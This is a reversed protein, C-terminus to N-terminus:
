GGAEPYTCHIIIHMCAWYNLCEHQRSMDDHYSCGSKLSKTYKNHTTPPGNLKDKYKEILIPWIEVLVSSTTDIGIPTIPTQM